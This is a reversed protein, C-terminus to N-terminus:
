SQSQIKTLISNWATIRGTSQSTLYQDILMKVEASIVLFDHKSELVISLGYNKSNPDTQKHEHKRAIESNTKTWSQPVAGAPASPPINSKFTEGPALSYM